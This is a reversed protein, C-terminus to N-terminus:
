VSEWGALVAWRATNCADDIASHARGEWALGAAEVSTRLNGKKGWHKGCVAALDVWRKLYKPQELKRWKCEMALAIKFDRCVYLPGATSFPDL